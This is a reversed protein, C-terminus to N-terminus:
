SRVLWLILGFQALIAGCVLAGVFIAFLDPRRRRLDSERKGPSAGGLPFISLTKM